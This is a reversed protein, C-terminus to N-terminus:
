ATSSRAILSCVPGPSSSSCSPWCGSCSRCHRAAGRVRRHPSSTRATPRHTAPRRRRSSTSPRRSGALRRRFGVRWRGPGQHHRFNRYRHSSPRGRRELSPPFPLRLRTVRRPCPTSCGHIRRCPRRPRRRGRAAATCTRTVPTGTVPPRGRAAAPDALERLVPPDAPEARWGPVGVVPHSTVRPTTPPDAGGSRNTAPCGPRQRRTCRLGRREPSRPRRGDGWGYCADLIASPQFPAPGRFGVGCVEPNQAGRGCPRWM